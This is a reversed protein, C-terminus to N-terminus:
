VKLTGNLPLCCTAHCSTSSLISQSRPVDYSTSSSVPPSVLTLRLTVWGPPTQTTRTAWGPLSSNAISWSWSCWLETAAASAPTPAGTM